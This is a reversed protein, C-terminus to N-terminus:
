VVNDDRNEIIDSIYDAHNKAPAMIEVNENGVSNASNENASFLFSYFILFVIVLAFVITAPFFLAIGRSEAGNISSDEIETYARASM